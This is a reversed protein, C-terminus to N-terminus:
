YPICPCKLISFPSICQRKHVIFIKESQLLFFSNTLCSVQVDKKFHKLQKEYLSSMECRENHLLRYDFQTVRRDHTM